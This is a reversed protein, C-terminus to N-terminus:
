AQGEETLRDTGGSAERQGSETTPITFGDVELRFDLVGTPVPERVESDGRGAGAREIVPDLALGRIRLVLRAKELEDLFELVGELDSEGTLHLRIVELGAPPEEGRALAGSRIEELLVRNRVAAEELFETLEAEALVTSSAHLLREEFRRASEEAEEIAIPFRPAKALLTRERSLLSREAEIRAQVDALTSRLPRVVLAYSLAPIMVGAGLLLARRDRPALQRLFSLGYRDSM